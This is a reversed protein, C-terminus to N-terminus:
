YQKTITADCNQDCEIASTTEGIAIPQQQDPYKYQLGHNIVSSSSLQSIEDDIAYAPQIFFLHNEHHQMVRAHYGIKNDMALSIMKSGKPLLSSEVVERSYARQMRRSHEGNANEIDAMIPIGDISLLEDLSVHDVILIGNNHDM